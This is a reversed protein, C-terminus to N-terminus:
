RSRRHCWLARLRASLALMRSDGLYQPPPSAITRDPDSHARAGPSPMHAAGRSAEKTGRAPARPTSSGPAPSVPSPPSATPVHPQLDPSTPARPPMSERGTGRWPSGPLVMVGAGDAPDAPAIEARGELVAVVTEEPGVILDLRAPADVAVRWRRTERGKITTLKAILGPTAKTGTARRWGLFRGTVATAVGGLGMSAILLLTIRISPRLVRPTEAASRDRRSTLRRRIQALRLDDSVVQIGLLRAADGIEGEITRPLDATTTGGSTPLDRWRIPDETDRPTV